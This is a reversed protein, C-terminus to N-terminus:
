FNARVGLEVRRPAAGTALASPKGFTSSLLNGNPLGFNTYNTINFAEGFLEIRAHPITVYKSLRMDLTFYNSGRNTNRGLNGVRNTFNTFYTAKDLPDGGVVALDPRDNITLDLNNDRGTTVTWPLGSRYSAL